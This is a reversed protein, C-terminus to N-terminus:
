QPTVSLAIAATLRMVVQHGIAEPSLQIDPRVAVTKSSGDAFQLTASHKALDVAKVIATIESTDSVVFAPKEGAPAKAALTAGGDDSPMGKDRMFIAMEEAVQVTVIDGKKIQDFNTAQPDIKMSRKNGQDDQLVLSRKKYDISYLKAVITTVSSTVGGPVGQMATISTNTAANLPDNHEKTCALLMVSGLSILLLQNLTKLKFNM